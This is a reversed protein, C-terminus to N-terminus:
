AQEDREDRRMKNMKLFNNEIIRSYVKSKQLM